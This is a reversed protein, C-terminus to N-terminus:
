KGENQSATEQAVWIDGHITLQDAVRITGLAASYPEIGFDTQRIMFSGRLRIHGERQEAQAVVRLPQTVGHLTLEGDLQYSQSAGGAKPKVPVASAIQFTATPYKTVDLVEAGLMTSTVKERTSRASDGKLGIYQRAEATDAVFSAMDIVISGANESAGLQISGSQVKGMVAHEHGLGTKGVRVYARSRDTNIEGPQLPRAAGAQKSRKDSPATGQGLSWHVAFLTVALGAVAIVATRKKM